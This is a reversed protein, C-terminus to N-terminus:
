TGTSVKFEKLRKREYLFTPIGSIVAFTFTAVTVIVYLFDAHTVAWNQHM